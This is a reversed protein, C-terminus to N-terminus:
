EYAALDALIKERFKSESLSINCGCYKQRYLNDQRAMEQGSRYGSRFDSDDFIIGHKKAAAHGIRCILDFDQYISVQLTSAFVPFGKEAATSATKNIRLTYCMRCRESQNKDTWVTWNDPQSGGECILPLSWKEALIELQKLRRQWEKQPHINPNFYYMTIAYGSKTLEQVPFEACPGCCTHLLIKKM